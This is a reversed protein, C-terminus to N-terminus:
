VPRKRQGEESETVMKKEIGYVTGTQGKGRHWCTCPFTGDGVDNTVPRAGGVM